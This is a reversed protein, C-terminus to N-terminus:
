RYTVEDNSFGAADLDAIGEFDVGNLSKEVYFAKSNIESSTVWSLFNGIEFEESNVTLSESYQVEAQMMFPICMFLGLYLSQPFSKFRLYKATM